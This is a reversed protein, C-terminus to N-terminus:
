EHTAPPLRADDVTQDKEGATEAAKRVKENERFRREGDVQKSVAFGIAAIGVLSLVVAIACGIAAGLAFPNWNRAKAFAIGGAPATYPNEDM